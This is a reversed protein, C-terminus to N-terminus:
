RIRVIEIGHDRCRFPFETLISLGRGRPLEDVDNVHDILLRPGEIGVLVARVAASNEVLLEYLLDGDHLHQAASLHTGEDTELLTRHRRSMTQLRARVHVNHIPARNASTTASGCQSRRLGW